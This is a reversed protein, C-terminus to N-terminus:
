ADHGVRLGSTASCPSLARPPGPNSTLSYPSTGAPGPRPDETLDDWLQTLAVLMHRANTGRLTATQERQRADALADRAAILMEDAAARDYTGPHPLLVQGCTGDDTGPRSTMAAATSDAIAGILVATDRPVTGAAAAAAELMGPQALVLGSAIEPRANAFAAAAEPTKTDALWRWGTWVPIEHTDRITRALKEALVSGPLLGDEGVSDITRQADRTDRRAEDADADASNAVQQLM